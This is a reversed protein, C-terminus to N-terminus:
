WRLPKLPPTSKNSGSSSCGSLGLSSSLLLAAVAILSLLNPLRRRVRKLTALPLLLFGLAVPALPNGTFPTRINDSQNASTQIILTVTTTGSGAAITAPTFTATAGTSLGTASFNIADPFVAGAPPTLVLSYTGTGGATTTASGASTGPALSFTPAAVAFSTTATTAVYNGNAAQNANLM